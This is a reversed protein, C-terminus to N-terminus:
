RPPRAPTDPHGDGNWLPSERQPPTCKGFFFSVSGAVPQGRGDGRAAHGGADAPRQVRRPLLRPDQPQNGAPTKKLVGPHPPMWRTPRSFFTNTPQVGQGRPPTGERNLVGRTALTIFALQAVEGTYPDQAARRGVSTDVAAPWQGPPPPAYALRM